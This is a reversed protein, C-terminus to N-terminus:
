IDDPKHNPTSLIGKAKVPEKAKGFMYNFMGSEKEIKLCGVEKILITM